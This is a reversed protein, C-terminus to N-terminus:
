NIVIISINRGYDNHKFKISQRASFFNNKKIFTDKNLFDINKIKHLKVQSKVYNPLDFYIKKNSDKFFIINKKDKKVFKKKFDKKVEYSNKSISPGIAVTTNGSKCGQKFMFNIVNKIIGKYAGKWGAHIAAVIKSINDYILIPACDATLIGIPLKKQDTIVADAKLRKKNVRFYKNVFIFKNSHTQHLLFIKKSKKSIKNKVIELNQKIHKKKDNSGPGCNLSQYIGKSKGGEKNFFGHSIDKLKKLKKSKIM